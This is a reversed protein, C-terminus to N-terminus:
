RCIGWEDVASKPLLPRTETLQKISEWESSSLLDGFLKMPTRRRFFTSLAKQLQALWALIEQRLGLIHRAHEEWDEPRYPYNGLTRFHFNIRQAWQPYFNSVNIAKETEDHKPSLIGLRHGYGQSGYKQRNPLLKRVLDVRYMTEEHLTSSNTDADTPEDQDIVYAINPIFHARVTAGDDELSFTNTERKFRLEVRSRYELFVSDFEEGLAIYLAYILDALTDIPIEEVFSEFDIKKM